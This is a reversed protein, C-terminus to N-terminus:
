RASAVDRAPGCTALHALAEEPRDRDYYVDVGCECPYCGKVPDGALLWDLAADTIAAELVAPSPPLQHDPIMM